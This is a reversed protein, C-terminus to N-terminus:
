QKDKGMSYLTCSFLFIVQKSVASDETGLVTDVM